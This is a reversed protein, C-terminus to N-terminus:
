RTPNSPRLATASCLACGTATPHWTREPPRSPSSALDAAIASPCKGVSLLHAVVYGHDTGIDAVRSGPRVMDAVAQLRTDLPLATM